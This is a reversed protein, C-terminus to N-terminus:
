DAETQYALQSKALNLAGEEEDRQNDVM